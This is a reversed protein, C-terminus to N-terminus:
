CKVCKTWYLSVSPPCLLKPSVKRCKKCRKKRKVKKEEKRRRREEEAEESEEILPEYKDPLVCFYVDKSTKQAKKGELPAGADGQEEAGM